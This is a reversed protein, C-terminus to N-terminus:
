EIGGFIFSELTVGKNEANTKIIHWIEVIGNRAEEIKIKQEPSNHRTRYTVNKMILSEDYESLVGKGINLRKAIRCVTRPHVGLKHAISSASKNEWYPQHNKSIFLAHPINLHKKSHCEACLCVISSDDGKICHHGQLMETSGCEQCVYKVKQKAWLIADNTNM